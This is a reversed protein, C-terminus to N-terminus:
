TQKAKVTARKSKRVIHPLARYRGEYYRKEIDEGERGAFDHISRLQTAGTNDREILWIQDRRLCDANMVHTSHLTFIWQRPHEDHVQFDILERIIEPHLSRDLEDIAMVSDSENPQGKNSMFLNAAIGVLAQTGSSEESMPFYADGTSTAHKFIIPGIKKDRQDIKELAARDKIILKEGTGDANRQWLTQIIGNIPIDFEKIFSTVFEQSEPHQDLIELAQATWHHVGQEEIQMSSLWAYAARMQKFESYSNKMVQHIFLQTPSTLAIWVDRLMENAEFAKEDFAYRDADQTFQRHYLVVATNKRYETLSEEWIRESTAALYFSYRKQNAVFHVEFMSPQDAYRKDLEFHRILRKPILERCLAPVVGLARILNSKGSANPGYIAAVKLLKPFRPDDAIGADVVPAKNKLRSHAVMTLTQRPGISRFNEVSFEILM